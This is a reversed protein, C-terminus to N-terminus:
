RPASPMAEANSASDTAVFIMSLLVLKEKREDANVRKRVTTIETRETGKTVFGKGAM